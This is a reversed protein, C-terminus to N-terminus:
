PFYHDYFAEQFGKWDIQEENSVMIGLMSEWWFEAEGRLLYTALRVWDEQPCQNARLIKTVDRIWEEATTPDSGGSFSPPDRRKFRKITWRSQAQQTAMRNFATTMQGMMEYIARAPDFDFEDGSDAMASGVCALCVFM